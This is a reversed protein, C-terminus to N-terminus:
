SYRLVAYVKGDVVYVIMGDKRWERFRERQKVLEFGCHEGREPPFPEDIKVPQCVFAAAALLSLM